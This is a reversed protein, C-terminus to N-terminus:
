RIVAECKDSRARPTQDSWLSRPQCKTAIQRIRAYGRPQLTTGPAHSHRSTNAPLIARRQQPTVDCNLRRGAHLPTRCRAHGAGDNLGRPKSGTRTESALKGAPVRSFNHGVGLRKVAPGYARQLPAPLGAPTRRRAVRSSKRRWQRHDILWKLADPAPGPVAGLQPCLWVKTAIGTSM